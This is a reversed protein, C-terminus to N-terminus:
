DPEARYFREGNCLSTQLRGHAFLDEVYKGAEARPIGLGISVDVVTCPRRELMELVQERSAAFLEDKAVPAAAPVVDVPAQFLRAFRELHDESVPRAFEEQAPRTVTLLEVRDPKVDEALRALRKVEGEMGTVGALLFIELDLRGTYRERFRVMGELVKEFSLDPHPRNVRRFLHEDPADLSPIIRDAALLDDQVAQQWLLSGNTLVTVPVSCQQKVAGIIEGIRAHLTPEGSGSFTISDIGQSSQTLKERIEELVAETSVWEKRECTRNTTSGLQCYVCDYTCTKFPVLDIGLSRGLRRSPVPGFLHHSM